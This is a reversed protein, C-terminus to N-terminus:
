IGSIEFNNSRRGYSCQGAVSGEDIDAIRGSINTSALDVVIGRIQAEEEFERFYSWLEEDVNPYFLGESPEPQFQGAPVILGDENCGYFFLGALPVLFLFYRLM